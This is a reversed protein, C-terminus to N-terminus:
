EASGLDHRGHRRRGSPQFIEMGIWATGALDSGVWVGCGLLALDLRGAPSSSLENMPKSRLLPPSAARARVLEDLLAVLFLVTGVAMSIQPIWLPTADNVHSTTSNGSDYTLKVSFFSRPPWCAAPWRSSTWAAAAAPSLLEVVAHRPHARRAQLHQGRWSAPRPWSTAPMADTGPINLSLQRAIIAALVLGVRPACAPWCAPRATYLGSLPAYIVAEPLRRDIAQGDAGAKKLWDDLM